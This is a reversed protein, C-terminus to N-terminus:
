RWDSADFARPETTLLQFQSRSAVEVDLHTVEAFAFTRRHAVTVIEAKTSASNCSASTGNFMVFHVLDLSVLKDGLEEPLWCETGETAVKEPSEAFLAVLALHALASYVFFAVVLDQAFAGAGALFGLVGDIQALSELDVHRM